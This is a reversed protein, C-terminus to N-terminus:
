PYGAGRETQRNLDWNLQFYDDYKLMFRLRVTIASDGYAVVLFVPAPTKINTQRQDTNNLGKEVENLDSNYGIGIDIDM